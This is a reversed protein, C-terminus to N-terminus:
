AAVPTTIRDLAAFVRDVGVEAILKDLDGDTVPKNRHNVCDSLKIRGAKVAARELDTMGRLATVYTHNARALATAQALTLGYIDAGIAEVALLARKTANGKRAQYAFDWGAVVRASGQGNVNIRNHLNM